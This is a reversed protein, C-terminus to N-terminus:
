LLVLLHGKRAPGNLGLSGQKLENYKAQEKINELHSPLHRLSM